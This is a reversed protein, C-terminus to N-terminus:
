YYGRRKLVFSSLPRLEICCTSCGYAFILCLPPHSHLSRVSRIANMPYNVSPPLFPFDPRDGGLFGPQKKELVHPSVKVKMDKVVAKELVM